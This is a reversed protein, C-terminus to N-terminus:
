SNKTGKVERLKNQVEIHNKALIVLIMTNYIDDYWKEMEEDSLDTIRFNQIYSKESNNHRLHFNNLMCALDDVVVNKNNDKALVNGLDSDLIWKNKCDRNADDFFRSLETLIKRKSDINGQNRFWNYELLQFAVKEDEKSLIQITAITAPKSEIIVESGDVMAREHNSLDLFNDINKELLVVSEEIYSFDFDAEYDKYYESSYRVKLVKDTHRIFDIIDLLMESYSYLKAWDDDGSELVWVELEEFAIFRSRRPYLYFYKEIVGKLSITFEYNTRCHDSVIEQYKKTSKRGLINQLAGLEDVPNFVQNTILDFYNNRM